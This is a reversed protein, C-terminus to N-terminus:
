TAVTEKEKEETTEDPFAELDSLDAQLVAKLQKKMKAHRVLQVVVVIVLVAAILFYGLPIGQSKEENPSVYKEPHFVLQYYNTYLMLSSMNMKNQILQVVTDFYSEPILNEDVYYVTTNTTSNFEMVNTRFSEDTLFAIHPGDSFVDVGALLRSDYSVGFLNLITPLIDINCCYTDCVVPEKMAGNWLIFSNRMRGFPQELEEGALENYEDTNLGYPYHDTTLVIVTDEIMGNAELQELLYELAYELELNCSLYAKVKDSYELGHAAVYEEIVDRNKACMPNLDFDYDYHGSYTMYYAVFPEGQAFVIPLQYFPIM